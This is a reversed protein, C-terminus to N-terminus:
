VFRAAVFAGAGFYAGQPLGSIFRAAAFMELNTAIASLVNGAVFLGMLALLLTRRNLKTAALTVVPAGLVVGFAYATIARTATPIDVGLSQAFLQLIGM